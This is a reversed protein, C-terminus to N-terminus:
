QNAKEFRVLLENGRTVVSDLAEKATKPTIIVLQSLVIGAAALMDACPQAPPSIFVLLRGSRQQQQQLYCQHLLFQM